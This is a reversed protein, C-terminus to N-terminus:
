AWTVKKYVRALPLKCSISELVIEDTLDTYDRSTWENTTRTHHTIHVRDQAVILYDRLSLIRHYIALKGVRDLERTSESTVEVLVLPNLLTRGNQRLEYSREGCTFVVDPYHYNRGPLGVRMSETFVQCPKDDIQGTFSFAINNSIIMHDDSAGAMAYAYGNDYEFRIGAREELALYEDVSM